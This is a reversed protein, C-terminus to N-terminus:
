EPVNHAGTSSTTAPVFEVPPAVRRWTGIRKLVDVEAGTDQALVQAFKNATKEDPFFWCELAGNVTNPGIVDFGEKGAHGNRKISAM